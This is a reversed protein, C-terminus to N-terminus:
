TMEDRALVGYLFNSASICMPSIRRAIRRADRNEDKEMYISFRWNSNHETIFIEARDKFQL